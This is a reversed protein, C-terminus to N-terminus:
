VEAELMPVAGGIDSLPEDTLYVPKVGRSCLFNEIREKENEDNIRGTFALEGRSIKFAAGGIFGYQFGPLSAINPKIRLVHFGCTEAASAIGPDATIISDEDVVCVSCRAYGQGVKIVANTLNADILKDATRPNLIIWNGIICVNLNADYPYRSNQETEAYTVSAHYKALKDALESGRLHKACILRNDGLHLVSLDAHGSLRKDVFGNNPVYIPTIGVNKLSKDLFDSYKDGIILSKVRKQPLNPKEVFKM